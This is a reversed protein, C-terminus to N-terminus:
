KKIYMESDNNLYWGNFIERTYETGNEKKFSFIYQTEMSTYGQRQAMNSLSPTVDVEESTYGIFTESTLEFIFRSIDQSIYFIKTGVPINILEGFTIKKYGKKTKTAMAQFVKKKEQMTQKGQEGFVVPLIYKNWAVQYAETMISEKSTINYSKDLKTALETMKPTTSLWAILAETDFVKNPEKKRYGNLISYFQVAYPYGEVTKLGYLKGLALIDDFVRENNFIMKPDLKVDRWDYLYFLPPNLDFYGIIPEGLRNDDLLPKINFGYKMFMYLTFGRDFLPTFSKTTKWFNVIGLLSMAKANTLTTYDKIFVKQGKIQEYAVFLRSFGDILLPSATFLNQTILFANHYLGAIKSPNSQLMDDASQRNESTFDEPNINGYVKTLLEKVEAISGYYLTYDSQIDTDTFNGLNQM